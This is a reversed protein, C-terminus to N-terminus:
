ASGFCRWSTVCDLMWAIVWPDDNIRENNSRKGSKKRKVFPFILSVCQFDVPYLVVCRHLTFISFHFNFPSFYASNNLSDEVGRFPANLISMISFKVRIATFAGRILSWEHCNSQNSWHNSSQRIAQNSWHNSSQRIAQNNSHNSRALWEPILVILCELLWELTTM